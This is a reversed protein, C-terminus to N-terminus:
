PFRNILVKNLKSPPIVMLYGLYAKLAVYNELIDLKSHNVNYCELLNSAKIFAKIKPRDLM